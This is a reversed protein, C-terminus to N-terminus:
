ENNLDKIINACIFILHKTLKDIKNCTIHVRLEDTYDFEVYNKSNEIHLKLHYIFDAPYDNVEINGTLDNQNCYRKFLVMIYRMKDSIIQERQKEQKISDQLQKSIQEIYNM